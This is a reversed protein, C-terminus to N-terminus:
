KPVEDLVFRLCASVKKLPRLFFEENSILAIEPPPPLPIRTTELSVSRLSASLARM